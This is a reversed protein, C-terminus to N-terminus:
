HSGWGLPALSQVVNCASNEKAALGNPLVYQVKSALEFGM